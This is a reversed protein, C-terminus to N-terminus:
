FVCALIKLGRLLKEHFSGPMAGSVWYDRETKVLKQKSPIEFIEISICQLNTSNMSRRKPRLNHRRLIRKQHILM